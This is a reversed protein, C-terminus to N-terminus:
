QLVVVGYNRIVFWLKLSCFRRSLPIGWQRYDIASESYSHQLYLSDVVVAQTLKFRNRVWMTSCDFNVLMWKNPNINFSAAYKVGKMLYQFEPCIFASDAYSVNVHLLAGVEACIPGIEDLRDFACRGTTGLSTCVFFPHLGNRRDEEMAKRLIDGMLVHNEDPVLIRLKVFGVIAAKEVCSHSEKSCYAMLKSLLTTEEVM